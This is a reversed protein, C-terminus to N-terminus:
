ANQPTEGKMKFICEYSEGPELTIAQSLFSESSGGGAIDELLNGSYSQEPLEQRQIIKVKNKETIELHAKTM